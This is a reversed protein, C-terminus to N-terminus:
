GTPALRFLPLPVGGPEIPAIVLMVRQGIAAADPAADIVSSMMRFGEDCDVLVVSYPAEGRRHVVTASYVTGHGSAIRWELNASGTFPCLLRPYFVARQAAPSWQYALEGAALHALYRATPSEAARQPLPQAAIM